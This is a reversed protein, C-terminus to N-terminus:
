ERDLDELRKMQEDTLKLAAAAVADAIQEPRSAGLIATTVAPNQLVWAQAVQAMPLGWEACITRFREVRQLNRDTMLAHLLREGAAGRSHEPLPGDARYRGALLGRGLPSYVMIGVGESKCFPILEAEINRVLLSYQPQVSIFRALGERASIGHAKAIQWAAFNSCGIYRVKGQHVLDDMARLTEELPTEPDFSHCQYLDIYDTKLRRLSAEVASMMHGRSLGSDNPGPGMPHRVKTALVVRERRSGLLNGLITESMGREAYNGTDQGKGYMNATDIFNIGAELATDIIRGSTAEDIWRGFAMTGLCVRSVKLGSDGLNRYEM